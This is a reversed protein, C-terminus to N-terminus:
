FVAGRAQKTEKKGAFIAARSPRFATALRGRVTMFFASFGKNM